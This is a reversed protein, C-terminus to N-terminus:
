CVGTVQEPLRKVAQAQTRPPIVFHQLERQGNGLHGLGLDNSLIVDSFSDAISYQVATPSCTSQRHTVESFACGCGADDYRMPNERSAGVLQLRKLWVGVACFMKAALRPNRSVRTATMDDPVIM